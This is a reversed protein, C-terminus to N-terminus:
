PAYTGPDPEDGEHLGLWNIGVKKGHTSRSSLAALNGSSDLLMANQGHKTQHLFMKETPRNYNRMGRGLRESVPLEDRTEYFHAALWREIETLREASMAPIYSACHETVLLNAITIFPSLDPISEFDVEIVQAVEDPTTRPM